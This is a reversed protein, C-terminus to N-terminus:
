RGVKFVVPVPGAHQFRFTAGVTDGGKLARRPSIFMLHYGGGSLRVTRGSGVALGEAVPRMRMIGGAMSMLHIEVSAAAPSDVSVLRDDARSANTIVAYGVATPAAPPPTPIRADRVVIMPAAAVARSLPVAFATALIVLTLPRLLRSRVCPRIM